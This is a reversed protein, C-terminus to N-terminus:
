LQLLRRLEPTPPPVEPKVPEYPCQYGQALKNGVENLLGETFGQKHHYSCVRTFTLERPLMKDLRRIIEACLTEVNWQFKSGDLDIFLSRKCFLRQLFSLKEHPTASRYIWIWVMPDGGEVTAFRLLDEPDHIVNIQLRQKQGPHSLQHVPRQDALWNQFDLDQFTKVERTSTVPTRACAGIFHDPHDQWRIRQTAVGQRVAHWVRTMGKLEPHYAVENFLDRSLTTVGCRCNRWIPSYGKMDAYIFHWPFVYNNFVYHPELVIFFDSLLPSTLCYDVFSTQPPVTVTRATRFEQYHQWGSTNSSSSENTTEHLLHVRRVWPAFRFVSLSAWHSESKVAPDMIVVDLPPYRQQIQDLLEQVSAQQLESFPGRDLLAELALILVACSLIFILIQFVPHIQLTM